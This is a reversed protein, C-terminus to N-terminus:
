RVDGGSAIVDYNFSKNNCWVVDRVVDEHGELTTLVYFSDNRNDKAQWVKVLNDNGCSAFRLPPIQSSVSEDPVPGWSVGNVGFGHGFFKHSQWNENKYEHVSICGDTSGCLLILGYEQPAFAITNVSSSHEQYEFLKVWINPSNEKWIIAKKDFGCSALLPGFRPHSWTVQWISNEHGTGFIEGVKKPSENM